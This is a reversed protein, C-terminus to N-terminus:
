IICSFLPFFSLSSFFCESAQSYKKKLSNRAIKSSSASDYVVALHLNPRNEQRLQYMLYRGVGEALTTGYDVLVVPSQCM